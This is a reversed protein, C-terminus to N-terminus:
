RLHLELYLDQAFPERGRCEESKGVSVVVLCQPKNEVCMAVVPKENIQLWYYSIQERVNKWLNGSNTHPRIVKRQNIEDILQNFIDGVAIREPQELLWSEVFTERSNM